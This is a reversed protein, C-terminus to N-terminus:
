TAFITGSGRNTVVSDVTQQILTGAGPFIGAVGNVFAARTDPNAVVYGMVTLVVLLMPFLSLLTAYAIVAARSVCDDVLFDRIALGILRAISSQGVRRLWGFRRLSQSFRAEM